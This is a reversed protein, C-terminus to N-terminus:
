MICKRACADAQEDVRQTDKMNRPYSIGVGFVLPVVDLEKWLRSPLEPSIEQFLTDTIGAGLFKSHRM